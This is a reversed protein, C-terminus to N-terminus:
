SDQFSDFCVQDSACRGCKAVTCVQLAACENEALQVQLEAVRQREADLALRLRSSFAALINAKVKMWNNASRTHQRLGFLSNTMDTQRADQVRILREVM